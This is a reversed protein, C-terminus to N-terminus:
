LQNVKQSVLQSLFNKTNGEMHVLMRDGRVTTICELSYFNYNRNTKLEIIQKYKISTLMTLYKLLM